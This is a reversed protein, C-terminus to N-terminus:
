CKMRGCSRKRRDSSFIPSLFSDERGPARCGCPLMWCWSPLPPTRPRPPAAYIGPWPAGTGFPPRAMLGIAQVLAPAKEQVLPSEKIESLRALGGIHLGDTRLEISSLGPIRNLDIVLDAAVVRKKMKPILDTGGALLRAKDPYDKLLKLVENLSSPVLYELKPLPRVEAEM